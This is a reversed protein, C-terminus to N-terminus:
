ISWISIKKEPFFRQHYEKEMRIMDESFFGLEELARQRMKPYTSEEEYIRLLDLNADAALIFFIIQEEKSNLLLINKQNLINFATTNADPLSHIKYLYYKVMLNIKKFAEETISEFNEIDQCFAFLINLYNNAVQPKFDRQYRKFYISEYKLLRLDQIGIRKSLEEKLSQIRRQRQNSKAEHEKGEYTDLEKESIIDAKLYLDFTELQPDVCSILFLIREDFTPYTLGIRPNTLYSLTFHYFEVPSTAYMPQTEKYRKKFEEAAQEIEKKRVSSINKYNNFSFAKEYFIKQTIYIPQRNIM